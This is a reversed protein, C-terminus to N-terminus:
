ASQVHQSRIPPHAPPEVPDDGTVFARRPDQLSALSVIDRGFVAATLWVALVRTKREWSPVALVHYGRHMLWAPLGKIVIGRYQFIGRGLGLTAVTGLSRHVYQKAKRGRLTAVINRALLKGQRVAHQANPVTVAGPRSVALDPIAADDGAGWADPVPESETGVRLDARVILMGRGDIPLDTHSRVMPNAANGVTWVILDSDFEEGTSLVVHGDRASILQANLHIRAGRKELSRVVWQGPGDSVEPLIRDRAEVLHFQLEAPNLEPYARMLSTALSLLEGFGEVGSFGGGVFTVTLLRRRLPGPELTSARDFATLLRDRIAVAEEVHKMGIAQEAVGPIALKRTVAGATVVIIDYGLAFEPGEAPQVTATRHAHDVAVVTGSILTARRLHRRLSVAAHRAEVSGALVEPLFPQYTMYPRPDVVVVRAEDRRLKEELKWATYFGAYGGGVVLITQM